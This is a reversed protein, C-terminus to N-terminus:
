SRCYSAFAKELAGYGKKIRWMWVDNMILIKETHLVAHEILDLYDLQVRTKM